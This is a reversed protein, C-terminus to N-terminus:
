TPLKRVTITKSNTYEALGELANELGIGSQKHGGFPITPSFVHTENIWVTGTELRRAIEHARETDRSWITAALGYHSSNARRIVDEVETFRLLPLVPGFAEETVVPADDPPNDIITLPVFYGPGEPREGGLLFRLGSARAEDILAWVKEYQPRNQIPGLDTGQQSGDGMKITQAYDVIEAALADYVDDHIYLRKTAVCFQASNQFAAWCLERALAKPEIDPMVIAPDNGGLELTLRKLNSAASAMISRGTETSGTFAIKAIGPHATMWKGLDDGGCVVNFVGPPLLARCLEGLKLTCLPTFPSPKIVITNGAVLAPAIKWVALLLPFNWPTIGGVVGLPERHVEVRHDPGDELVHVPLSQEAIARCWYVSGDIEWDAGSRAKGQEMTLLRKFDEANAEIVDGIMAVYKQRQEIPLASWAPFARRAAAIAEDLQASSADPVQAFAEETAPNFVEFSHAATAPRGDITMEYRSFLDVM